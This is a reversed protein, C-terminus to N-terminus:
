TRSYIASLEIVEENSRDNANPPHVGALQIDSFVKSTELARLFQLKAEESMANVTLKVEVHGKKQEPSISVLRVGGPKIRELDMFMQTWNFSRGDIITNLFAAREHLRKKDPENFYHDLEEHRQMLNAMLQRNTEARARLEANARRVRLVHWGLSLLVIGGVAAILVSGAYFRRYSVLGKTALNLRIKM